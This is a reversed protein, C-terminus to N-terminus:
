ELLWILGKYAIFLLGIIIIVNALGKPVKLKNVFYILLLGGLVLMGCFIAIQLALSDVVNKIQNFDVTEM